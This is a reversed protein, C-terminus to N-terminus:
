SPSISVDSRVMPLRKFEGEERGLLRKLVANEAIVERSPRQARKYGAKAPKRKKGKAAMLRNLLVTNIEM